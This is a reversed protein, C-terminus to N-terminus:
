TGKEKYKAVTDVMVDNGDFLKAVEGSVKLIQIWSNNQKHGCRQLDPIYILVRLRFDEGERRGSFFSSKMMVSSDNLDSPM